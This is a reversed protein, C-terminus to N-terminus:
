LTAPQTEQFLSDRFGGGQASRHDGDTLALVELSRAPMPKGFLFGQMEDCDLKLLQDRQAETEVGEAVVKLSLAHALKVVADVIARADASTAVEHVFSADIKLEAAPLRRLYSLSAQGVGFDDISVHLGARRLKEFSRQTVSTDEMAVSETIECTFRGPQLQHRALAAQLRDVLDDQRMQYASINIAVRMRLGRERWQAAQRTADEIVWNGIACILGHREALPIFVEPSVLGRKPHHWRLLAEAATIQLSRADVKPQYYLELERKEVAQRLEALLEAQERPDQAVKPDFVMYHAGGALKVQRMASSAYAALRQRSAHQPYAAVGISCQLVTSVGNRLAFPRAVAKCLRGALECAVDLEGEVQLMFEVGGMRVLHATPGGVKQLRETADVILQDTQAHGYGDNVADLNELSIALLCLTGGHRDCRVVSEDLLREFAQNDLLVTSPAFDVQREHSSMLRQQLRWVLTLLGLLCALLFAAGLWVWVPLSASVAVSAPPMKTKDAQLVVLQTRASSM